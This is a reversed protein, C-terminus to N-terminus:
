DKILFEQNFVGIYPLQRYREAYDIGYGVIFEDPVEFGVYDAEIAVKRGAPKDLFSIIKVSNAQREELLGKLYLLTNGTDIIDEVILIDRGHAVTSLDKLIRVEGSSSIGYGYSTVDMFDVEADISLEKLLDVTFMISGKLIGVVLPNKGAYDQSIVAALEKVRVAIEERTFLVEKLHPHM